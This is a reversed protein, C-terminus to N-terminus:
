IWTRVLIEQVPARTAGDRSISRPAILTTTNFRAYLSRSAPTDSNSVVILVGRAAAATVAEALERQDEFDFGASTYSTFNATDTIPIYPPDVYVIEGPRAEELMARMDAVRLSVGQLACSCARLNTPDVLRPVRVTGDARDQRGPPVNFTGAKNVRYIGNNCTKNLTIMRAARAVPALAMPKENRLAGYVECYGDYGKTAVATDFIAQHHALAELLEEVKDRVMEYTGVLEANVDSLVVPRVAAYFRFFVAGGGLAVERYGRM